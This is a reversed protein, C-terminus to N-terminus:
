VSPKYAENKLEITIFIRLIYKKLHYCITDRPLAKTFMDPMMKETPLYKVVIMGERVKETIYYYTAEIHRTRHQVGMTAISDFGPQLRFQLLFSHGLVDEHFVMDRRKLLNKADIDFVIFVNSTDYYHIEAVGLQQARKWEQKYGPESIEGLYDWVGKKILVREIDGKWAQSNTGDLNEITPKLHSMENAM